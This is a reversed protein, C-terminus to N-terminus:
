EKMKFFISNLIENLVSHNIPKQLIFSIGLDKSQNIVSDYNFSSSLVALKCKDDLEKRITKFEEIQKKKLTM